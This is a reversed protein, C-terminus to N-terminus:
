DICCVVWLGVAKSSDEDGALDSVYGRYWGCFRQAFSSSYSLTPVCVMVCLSVLHGTEDISGKAM